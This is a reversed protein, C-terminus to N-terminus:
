GNFVYPSRYFDICNHSFYPASNILSSLALLMALRLVSILLRHVFISFFYPCFSASYQFLFSYYLQFSVYMKPSLWEHHDYLKGSELIIILMQLVVYRKFNSTQLLPRGILRFPRNIIASKLNEYYDSIQIKPRWNAM